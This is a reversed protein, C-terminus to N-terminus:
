IKGCNANPPPQSDVKITCANSPLVVQVKEAWPREKVIRSGQPLLREPVCYCSIKPIFPHVIRFVAVGGGSRPKMARMIAGHVRGRVLGLSRSRYTRRLPGYVKTM